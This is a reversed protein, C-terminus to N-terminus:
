CSYTIEFCDYSYPAVCERVCVCAHVDSFSTVRIGRQVARCTHDVGGANAILVALSQYENGAGLEGVANKEGRM